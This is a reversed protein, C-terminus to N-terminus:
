IHILSLDTTMPEEGSLVIDDGFWVPEASYHFEVGLRDFEDSNWPPGAYHYRDGKKSYKRGLIDPHGYLPVPKRGISRMVQPLGGIHDFHGHSLLIRRAESLDVGLIEANVAATGLSGTDFLFCDDATKVFFSLGWEGLLDRGAVTNESLTVIKLDKAKMM